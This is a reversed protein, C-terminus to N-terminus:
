ALWWAGLVTLAVATPWLGAVWAAASAPTAAAAPLTGTYGRALMARHVREGQEYSRVFLVGLGRTLAPWAAPTRTVLGRAAQARTLATWRETTVGLYRLFFTGIQVLPDPVRLRHLGALLQEPRTTAALTLAALVCITGKALLSWGAWLGEVSLALPGVTVRPGAAVLPMALAFVVFPIEVALRPAVWRATVGAHALRLLVVALLAAYPWTAERPLAVVAVAFSVVGLIRVHAPVRGASAADDPM